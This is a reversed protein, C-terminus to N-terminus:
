ISAYIRLSVSRAAHRVNLNGKRFLGVRKKRKRGKEKEKEKKRGGRERRKEVKELEDGRRATATCVFLSDIKSKPLLFFFYLFFSLFPFNRNILSKEM